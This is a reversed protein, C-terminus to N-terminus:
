FILAFFGLFIFIYPLLFFIGKLLFQQKIGSFNQNIEEAVFDEGFNISKKAFSKRKKKKIVM